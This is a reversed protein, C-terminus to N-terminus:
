RVKEFKFTNGEKILLVEAPKEKCIVAWEDLIKIFEDHPIKLFPGGDDQESYLDGLIIENGEKELTTINSNTSISLPNLAWEKFSEPSSGADALLFIVLINIQGSEGGKYSYSGRDFVLKAFEM